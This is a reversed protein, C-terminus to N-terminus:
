SKKSKKVFHYKWKNKTKTTRIYHTATNIKFGIKLDSDNSMWDCRDIIAGKEDDKFKKGVEKQEILIHWDSSNNNVTFHGSKRTINFVLRDLKPKGLKIEARATSQLDDLIRLIYGFPSVRFPFGWSKEWIGRSVNHHRFIADAAMYLVLAELPRPRKYNEYDMQILRDIMELYGFLVHLDKLEHYYKEKDGFDAKAALEWLKNFQKIDRKDELLHKYIDYKDRDNIWSFGYNSQCGHPLHVTRNGVFITELFSESYGKLATSYYGLDHFMAIVFWAGKIFKDGLDETKDRDSKWDSLRYERLYELAIRIQSCVNDARKSSTEHGNERLKDSFIKFRKAVSDLYEGSTIQELVMESLVKKPDDSIVIDLLENGLTVIYASHIFHDKYKYDTDFLAFSYCFWEWYQMMCVTPWNLLNISNSNERIHHSFVRYVLQSCDKESDPINKKLRERETKLIYKEQDYLIRSVLRPLKLWNSVENELRERQDLPIDQRIRSFEELNFDRWGYQWYDKAIVEFLRRQLEEGNLNKLNIYCNFPNPIRGKNYEEVLLPMNNIAM